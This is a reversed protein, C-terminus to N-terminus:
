YRFKLELLKQSMFILSSINIKNTTRAIEHVIVALTAKFILASKKQIEAYDTPVARRIIYM